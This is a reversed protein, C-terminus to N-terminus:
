PKDGETDGETGTDFGAISQSLSGSVSGPRIVSTERGRARVRERAKNRDEFTGWTVPTVALITGGRAVECRRTLDPTEGGATRCLAAVVVGAVTGLLVGMAFIVWIM